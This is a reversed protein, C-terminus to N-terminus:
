EALPFVLEVVTGGDPAEHDRITVTGGYANMMETVLYLGFGNGPEKLESVGKRLVADKEEDPIGPGDDAVHVAIADRRETEVASASRREARQGSLLEGSEPDTPVDVTTESTRVEVTPSASDNHTVANSLVNEFVEGILDDGVVTTGPDPLDRTTFEAEPYTARSLEVKEEIASRLEVSELDYDSDVAIADALSRMTEILETMDAVRDRITELHAQPEPSGAFEPELLEARADILNLGNLINHRIIRNLFEIRERERELAREYERRDTLDRVIKLYGVHEGDDHRAAITVHAWFRTGDSRVRWGEDTAQGTEAAETLLEGPRGAERKERPYFVSFHEGVIEDRSYGKIREAGQNWSTVLGETDLAFVAHNDVGDVFQEFKAEQERLAQQREELLHKRNLEYGMWNGMLEVVTLEWQDFSAAEERDLFCLTGYFADNEYVPTGVYMEFGTETGYNKPDVDFPRTEFQITRDEEVTRQCHTQALPVVDGESLDASTTRVAELHYEGADADIRAFAGYEADFLDQGIGILRDVKEDFTLGPDSIVDYMRRLREDREELQSMAQSRRANYVGVGLAAVSGFLVGDLVLIWPKLSGMVALQLAVVVGYLGAIAVAIGVNWKVAAWVFRPEWDQRGIWVGGYVLGIALLLLLSNEVVTSAIGWSLATVDEWMDYLPVFLLLVGLLSVAIWSHRRLVSTGDSDPDFM